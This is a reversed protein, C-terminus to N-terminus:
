PLRGLDVRRGHCATATSRPMEPHADADLGFGHSGAGLAGGGDRGSQARGARARQVSYSQAVDGATLVAEAERAEEVNQAALHTVAARVAGWALACGM